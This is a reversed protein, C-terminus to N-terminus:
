RLPRDRSGSCVHWLLPLQHMTQISSWLGETLLQRRPRKDLAQSHTNAHPIARADPLAQTYTHWRAHM